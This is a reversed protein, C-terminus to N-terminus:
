GDARSGRAIKTQSRFGATEGGRTAHSLPLVRLELAAERIAFLLESKEEHFRMPDRASPALRELRDAIEDLTTTVGGVGGRLPALPTVGRADGHCKSTDRQSLRTVGAM